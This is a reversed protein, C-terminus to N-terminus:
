FLGQVGAGKYKSGGGGQLFYQGECLYVFHNHIYSFTLKNVLLLFHWKCFIWYSLRDFNVIYPIIFGYKCTSELKRRHKLDSAICIKMFWKKFYYVYTNPMVLQHLKGFKYCITKQMVNSINKYFLHYHM